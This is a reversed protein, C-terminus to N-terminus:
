RGPLNSTLRFTQARGNGLDAVLLGGAPIWALGAPKNLLGPDWGRRSGL